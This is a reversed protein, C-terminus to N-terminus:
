KWGAEEEDRADDDEKDQEERHFLPYVHRHNVSQADEPHQQKPDYESPCVHEHKEVGEGRQENEPQHERASNAPEGASLRKPSNLSAQPRRGDRMSVGNAVDRNESGDSVDCDGGTKRAEADAGNEHQAQHIVGGFDTRRTGHEEQCADVRRDDSFEYDAWQNAADDSPYLRHLRHRASIFRRSRTSLQHSKATEARAGIPEM